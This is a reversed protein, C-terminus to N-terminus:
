GSDTPGDRDDAAQLAQVGVLDDPLADPLADFRSLAVTRMGVLTIAVM